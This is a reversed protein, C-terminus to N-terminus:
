AIVGVLAVDSVFWVGGHVHFCLAVWGIPGDCTHANYPTVTFQVHTV